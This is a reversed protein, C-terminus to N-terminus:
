NPSSQNTTDVVGDFRKVDNTICVSVEFTTKGLPEILFRVGTVVVDNQGKHHFFPFSLKSLGLSNVKLCPVFEEQFYVYCIHGTSLRFKAGSLANIDFDGIVADGVVTDNSLNHRKNIESNLPITKLITNDSNLLFIERNREKNPLKEFNKSLQFSLRVTHPQHDAAITMTSLLAVNTMLCFIKKFM